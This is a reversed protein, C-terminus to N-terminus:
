IGVYRFQTGIKLRGMLVCALHKVRRGPNRKMRLIAFPPMMCGIGIAERWLRDAAKEPLNHAADNSLM